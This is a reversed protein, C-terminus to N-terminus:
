PPHPSAILSNFLIIMDEASAGMENLGGVIEAINTGQDMLMLKKPKAAAGDDAASPRSWAALSASRSASTVM